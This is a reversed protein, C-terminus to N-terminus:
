LTDPVDEESLEEEPLWSDSYEPKEITEGDAENLDYHEGPDQIYRGKKWQCIATILQLCGIALFIVGLVKLFKKM